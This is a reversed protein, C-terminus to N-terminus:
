VTDFIKNPNLINNPDFSKKILMHLKFHSDAWVIPLFKKQILGIGHEGSITGGYEKCATFLEKLGEEIKKNWEETKMKNQVFNIHVNGDGVHGFCYSKFGYKKSIEKAKSIIDKIFFRKVVVDAERYSMAKVAEGISRRIKWIKEKEAETEAVEIEGEAYKETILFINEIDKRIIELDNGDVEILMQAEYDTESDTNIDLYKKALIIAEKEMLEIACPSIGQNLIENTAIGINEIKKFPILLSVTHKPLPILRVVVKTVVGLTGESGVMLHTLSYGTSNKLTDSGTWIVEGNPLVVELNLVYARTVGYKLARPGGANTSVNGGIMSTGYSAPDPPYYLNYKALEKQFEYNIVGSELTAQHNETDIDIIKNMKKLCLVIGQAQPIAGGSLGTGASRPTIPLNYLNCYKLTESVQSTEQPFLVIAPLTDLNHTYDTSYEELADVSIQSSTYISKFFNIHKQELKNYHKLTIKKTM